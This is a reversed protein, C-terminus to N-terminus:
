CKPVERSQFAFIKLAGDVQHFYSDELVTANRTLTEGDVKFKVNKVQWCVALSMASAEKTRTPRPTLSLITFRGGEAKTKNAKLDRYVAMASKLANGTLSDLLVRTAKRTGGSRQLREDEAWYKRYVQEAQAILENQERNEAYEEPTCPRPASDYPSCTPSPAPTAVTSSSTPTVAPQQPTCGVLVVTLAAGCAMRLLSM